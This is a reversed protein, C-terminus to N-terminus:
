LISRFLQLITNDKKQLKEKSKLKIETIIKQQQQKYTM